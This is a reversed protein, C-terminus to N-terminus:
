GAGPCSHPPDTFDPAGGDGAPHNAGGASPAATSVPDARRRAPASRATRAVIKAALDRVKINERQSARRLADFAQDETWGSQAMIIGKAQEIVPMSKLRAEFRAQASFRLRDATPHATRCIEHILEAEDCANRILQFAVPADRRAARLQGALMQSQRRAARARMYVEPLQSGMLCSGAPMTEGYNGSISFWAPRSMKRSPPAGRGCKAM